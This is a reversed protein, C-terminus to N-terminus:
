PAPLVFEPYILLLDPDVTLTATDIWGTDPPTEGYGNDHLYLPLPLIGGFDFDQLLETYIAWMPIGLDIYNTVFVYHPDVSVDMQLFVAKGNLTDTTLTYEGNVGAIDAGTITFAVVIPPEEDTATITVAATAFLSGDSVTLEFVFDGEIDPTITPQEAAPDSLVATSGVPAQTIVWDFDLPVGEPDYSGTGDLTVLSGTFVSQPLGADAVPPENVVSSVISTVLWKELTAIAPIEDQDLGSIEYTRKGAVEVSSADTMYGDFKDLNFFGRWGRLSWYFRRYQEYSDDITKDPIVGLIKPSSIWTIKRSRWRIKGIRWFVGVKTGPDVQYNGSDFGDENIAYGIVIKGDESREVPFFEWGLFPRIARYAYSSSPFIGKSIFRFGKAEVEASVADYPYEEEELWEEEVLDEDFFTDELLPSSCAIVMILLAGSIAIKIFNKMMWGWSIRGTM